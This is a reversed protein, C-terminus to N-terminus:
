EIYKRLLTVSKDTVVTVVKVVQGSDRDLFSHFADGPYEM